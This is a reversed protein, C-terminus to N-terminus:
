LRGIGMAAHQESVYDRVLEDYDDERAKHPAVSGGKRSVCLQGAPAGCFRCGISMASM